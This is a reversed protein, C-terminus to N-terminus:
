FLGIKKLWNGYNRSAIVNLESTKGKKNKLKKAYKGKELYIKNIFMKKFLKITDRTNNYITKRRLELLYGLYVADNQYNFISVNKDIEKVREELSKMKLDFRRIDITVLNGDTLMRPNDVVGTRRKTGVGFTRVDGNLMRYERRIVKTRLTPRRIAGTNQCLTFRESNKGVWIYDEKPKGSFRPIFKRSYCCLTKRGHECKSYKFMAGIKSKYKTSSTGICICPICGVVENIRRKVEGSIFLVHRRSLRMWNILQILTAFECIVFWVDDPINQFLSRRKKM